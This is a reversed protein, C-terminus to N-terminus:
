EYVVPASENVGTWADDTWAFAPDVIESAGHPGDPQFRSAPDAYREGDSLELWYRTGAGVDDVFGEFHGNTGAALSFRRADNGAIVVDVSRARPAWTRFHTRGAGVEAGVPLRRRFDIAPAPVLDSKM